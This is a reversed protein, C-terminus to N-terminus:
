VYSSIMWFIGGVVMAQYIRGAWVLFTDINDRFEREPAASMVATSVAFSMVLLFLIYVDYATMM